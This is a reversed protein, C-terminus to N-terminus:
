VVPELDISCPHRSRSLRIGAWFPLHFMSRPEYRCAWMHAGVNGFLEDDVQRDSALQLTLAHGRVVDRLAEILGRIPDPRVDQPDAGPFRTMCFVNGEFTRSVVL